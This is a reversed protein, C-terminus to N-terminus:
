MRLLLGKLMPTKYPCQSSILPAIILTFIFVTLWTIIAGTTVWGVIPNLGLLVESLGRFFLVLAVQLLLPLFASFDFVLWGKMGEDRFVRLKVQEKPDHTNRALFERIWQKILIGFSATILSFLLSAFWLINVRVDGPAPQFPTATPFASVTANLLTGHLQYSATQMLLQRLVLFTEGPIDELLNQYSEILFATLVASFLGAQPM